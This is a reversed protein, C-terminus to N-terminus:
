IHYNHGRLFADIQGAAISHTQADLQPAFYFFQQPSPIRPAVRQAPETTEFKQPGTALPKVSAPSVTSALSQYQITSPTFTPQFRHQQAQLQNRQQNYLDQSQQFLVQKQQEFIQQQLLNSPHQRVPPVPREPHVQPQAVLQPLRTKLSIDGPSKPIQQYLVTNYQGTSPDFVLESTYVPQGSPVTSPHEAKLTTTPALSKPTTVVNNELQFRKLEEEFDVGSIPSPSPALPTSQALTSHKTLVVNPRPTVSVLLQPRYTTAPLTAPTPPTVPRPTVRVVAEPKESPVPLQVPVPRTPVRGRIRAPAPVASPVAVPVPSPVSSPTPHLYIQPQQPSEEEPVVGSQQHVTNFDQQFLTTSPRGVVPRPVPRLPRLPRKPINQPVNEEGSEESEDKDEEEEEEEQNPANPDCPNGSVYTFERKNGDPDVYGYKGRVVCDTGRTEEKFSGDAAEYGFTFSGDDNVKSYNRITQVPPEKATEKVRSPRPQPILGPRQIVRPYQPETGAREIARGYLGNLVEGENTLLVLKQQPESSEHSEAAYYEVRQPQEAQDAAEEEVVPRHPRVRIRRADAGSLLFLANLLAFIVVLDDLVAHIVSLPALSLTMM